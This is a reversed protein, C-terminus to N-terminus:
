RYINSLAYSIQVRNVTFSRTDDFYVKCFRKVKQVAQLFPYNEGGANGTVHIDLPENLGAMVAPNPEGNVAVFTGAAFSRDFVSDVSATQPTESVEFRVSFETPLGVGGEPKIEAFIKGKESSYVLGPGREWFARAIAAFNLHSLTGNQLVWHNRYLNLPRWTRLAFDQTQTDKPKYRSTEVRQQEADSAQYAVMLLYILMIAFTSAALDLLYVGQEEHEQEEEEALEEKM